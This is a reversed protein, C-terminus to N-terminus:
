IEGWGGGGPTQITLISAVSGAGHWKAPLDKQEGDPLTLSNRGVEGNEGGNTGWPANKRRETLLGVKAEGLFQISRILGDGGSHQGRGGTGRAIRYEVVRLPYHSELVEVPTNRTNTCHSHTASVGMGEASAGTGGALTEYYAYPRHRMADWGGITVNNMTGQSAAPIRNPLAPYLARFLVDVIRQSTEVNGAGVAAPYEANVISQQPAVISIPAFCGSNTPIDDSILCRTVYYCASRTIASTANLPAFIQPASGTFDFVLSDEKVRAAVRIPINLNGKGDDDLFDEACYEGQQLQNIVRLMMTEAYLLTEKARFDFTERGYERVLALFRNMGIRNAAIQASLDGRREYPTRSNTCVLDLLPEVVNGNEVLIIPPIILGEHYLETAHPPLSGPTMGGIDAHHARNAVFGVLEADYFVPAVVTLDPLHTGGYRPDNCLWITDPQWDIQQLLADMMAPMAGLHVPIHAAQALLKGDSSFIACSHDLREKINPSYATRELTAGMEEAVSSLLHKWVEVQLPDFNNM